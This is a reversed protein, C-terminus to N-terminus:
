LPLGSHHLLRYHVLFYIFKKTTKYKDSLRALILAGPISAWPVLSSIFGVSTGAFGREVQLFRPM